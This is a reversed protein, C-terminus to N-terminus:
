EGKDQIVSELCHNDDLKNLCRCICRGFWTSRGALIREGLADSLTEMQGFDKSTTLWNLLPSPLVNLLLVDLLIFLKKFYNSTSYRQM